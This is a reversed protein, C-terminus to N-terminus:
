NFANHNINNGFSNLNLFAPSEEKSFSNKHNRNFISPKPTSSTKRKVDFVDTSIKRNTMTSQNNSNQGIQM